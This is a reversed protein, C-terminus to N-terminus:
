RFVDKTEKNILLVYLEFAGVATGIPFSFLHVVIAVIIQAVKAWYKREKIAKALYIYFIGLAAVFISAIMLAGGVIGSTVGPMMQQFPMMWGLSSVVTGGVLLLVAGLLFIVAYVKDIITIAKIFKHDKSKKIAM